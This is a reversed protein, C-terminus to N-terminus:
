QLIFIRFQSLRCQCFAYRHWRRNGNYLFRGYDAVNQKMAGIDM